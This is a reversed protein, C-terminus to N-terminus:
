TPILCTFYKSTNALSATLNQRGLVAPADQTVRGASRHIQVMLLTTRRVIPFVNVTKETIIVNQACSFERDLVVSVSRIVNLVDRFFLYM